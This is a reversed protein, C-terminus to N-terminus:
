SPDSVNTPAPFLWPFQIAFRPGNQMAIGLQTVATEALTHANAYDYTSKLAARLCRLTSAWSPGGSTLASERNLASEIAAVSAQRDALPVDAGGVINTLLRLAPEVAQQYGSTLTAGTAFIGLADRRVRDVVFGLIPMRFRGPDATMATRCKAPLDVFTSWWAAFTAYGTSEAPAAHPM